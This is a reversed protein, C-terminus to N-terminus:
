KEREREREREGGGGWTCMCECRPSDHVRTALDLKVTAVTLANPPAIDTIASFVARIAVILTVTSCWTLAYLSKIVRGKAVGVGVGVVDLSM